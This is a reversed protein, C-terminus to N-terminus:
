GERGIARLASRVRKMMRACDDTTVSRWREVHAARVKIAVVPWTGFHETVIMVEQPGAHPSEELGSDTLVFLHEGKKLRVSTNRNEPLFVMTQVQFARAPHDALELMM